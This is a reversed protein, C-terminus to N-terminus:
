MDDAADSTYLLCGRSLRESDPGICVLASSIVLISSKQPAANFQLLRCLALQRRLANVEPVDRLTWLPQNGRM